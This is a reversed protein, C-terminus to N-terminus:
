LVSLLPVPATGTGLFLILHGGGGATSVLVGWGWRGWSVWGWLWWQCGHIPCSTPLLAARASGPRPGPQPLHHPPTARGGLCEQVKLFLLVNQM